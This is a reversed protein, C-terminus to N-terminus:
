GGRTGLAAAVEPCAAALGVGLEQGAGADRSGFSRAVLDPNAEVFETVCARASASLDTPAEALLVATAVPPCAGIASSLPERMHDESGDVFTAAAADLLARDDVNDRLCAAAEAPLESGFQGAFGEVLADELPGVLDCEGLAAGLRETVDAPLEVDLSTLDDADGLEQATIGADSLADVGVMDVIANAACTAQEPGVPTDDDERMATAVADVYEGAQGDTAGGETSAGDDDDGGCAALLVVGAALVVM